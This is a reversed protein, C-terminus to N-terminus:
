LAGVGFYAGLAAIGAALTESLNNSLAGGKIEKTGDTTVRCHAHGVAVGEVDGRPQIRCLACGSLAVMIAIAAMLSAARQRLRELTTAQAAENVIANAAKTVVYRVWSGPHKLKAIAHKPLGHGIEAALREADLEAAAVVIAYVDKPVRFRVFVERPATRAKRNVVVSLM